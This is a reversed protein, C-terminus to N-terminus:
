ALLWGGHENFLSNGRNGRNRKRSYIRMRKWKSIPKREGKKRRRSYRGGAPGGSFKRGKDRDM